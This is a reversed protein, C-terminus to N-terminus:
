YGFCISKRNKRLNSDSTRNCIGFVIQNKLHYFNCSHCYIIKESEFTTNEFGSLILEILNPCELDVARIVDDFNPMVFDDYDEGDESHIILKHLKKLFGSKLLAVICMSTMESSIIELENLNKMKSITTIFSEKMGSYNDNLLDEMRISFKELNKCFGLFKVFIINGNRFKQVTLSKLSNKSNIIFIDVLREYEDMQDLTISTILLEELNRCNDAISMFIGANEVNFDLRELYLERLNRLDGPFAFEETLNSNFNTMVFALSKLNKGNKIIDLVCNDHIECFKIELCQLKQCHQMAVNILIETDPRYCIKLVALNRSRRLAEYTYNKDSENTRRTLNIEKLLTPDKSLREFRKCVLNVNNFIDNTSAFSLIKLIVEDSLRNILDVESVIEPVNQLDCSEAM